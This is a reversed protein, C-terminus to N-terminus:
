FYWEPKVVVQPLHAASALATQVLNQFRPSSVGIRSVLQWPFAGHVLFEAQKGEKIDSDRFDAAQIAGWDLDPLQALSSRFPTYFTGANALSFAWRVDHQSAWAIVTHLDVELHVIPAQGGQYTLELDNGRHLVYLMVSRPCFYFPVYDGVFDGSYCSVPLTLRRQKIKSMGIPAGPGGRQIMRADSLLGGEAVMAALNDMHTIHYIKPHAPPTSM